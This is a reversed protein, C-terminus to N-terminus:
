ETTHRRAERLRNLLTRLQLYESDNGADRAAHMRRVISREGLRYAAEQLEREDPARVVSAQLEIALGQLDDPWRELPEGAVLLTFARRHAPLDFADEALMSLYSGARAPLAAAMQLFRRERVEDAGLRAAAEQPPRAPDGGDRRAGNLLREEQSQTLELLSAALRVAETREPNDPFGRLLGDVDDYAAGREAATRGARAIRSRVLYSLMPEPHEVLARLRDLGDATGALDGPDSGPPLPVASLRVNVGRAAEVSRWAAEQGARDGDFCLRVEDAPIALLRLQETTLSTGMCAVANDIGAKALGLVDTYGEVVAIWGRKSASPRALDLAFLLRRKRFAPGEASNVYKAREHPDLTRGGFGQVRGQADAIPFMIRARFFDGGDHRALGADVLDQRSYGQKLARRALVSGGGPAYGVRYRRLLDEDFGREALYARAPEAEDSKWLYAAYFDGARGLLKIRRAAPPAPGV